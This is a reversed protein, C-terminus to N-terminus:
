LPVGIDAAVRRVYQAALSYEGANPLHELMVSTDRHLKNAESLFVGYDLNGLGPRVEDLHVTLRSALAIDKAHCSKIHPGLKDFCERIFNANDYFRRPSSIMNVPDLHVGLQLRDIARIIELYSDPSDPFIWPMTELAYFARRPQVTDIIDRVTEVILDFTEASFNDEHPGDWQEARSGAINVCVRAGVQDALALASKNKEIAARRTAEDRCIPNSWAGVEAIAIDAAAAARAYAAIHDASADPAVPCYAARYRHRQLAAIWQQPNSYEDFIPGGFRM